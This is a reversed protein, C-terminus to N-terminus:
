FGLFTWTDSLRGAVETWSQSGLGMSHWVSERESEIDHELWHWEVCSQTNGYFNFQSPLRLHSSASSQSSICDWQRLRRGKEASGYPLIDWRVMLTKPKHKKLRALLSGKDWLQFGCLHGVITCQVYITRVITNEELELVSHRFQKLTNNWMRKIKFM